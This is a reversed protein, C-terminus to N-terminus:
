LEFPLIGSDSDSDLINPIGSFPTDNADPENDISSSISEASDSQRDDEADDVRLIPRRQQLMTDYSLEFISNLDESSNDGDSKDMSSRSSPDEVPPEYSETGDQGLILLNMISVVVRTLPTGRM